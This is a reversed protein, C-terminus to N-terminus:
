YRKKRIKLAKERDQLGYGTNVLWGNPVGARFGAIMDGVTDGVIWSCSLDIGLDSAGALLMGPNPKRCMANSGPLAPCAYIADIKGGGLMVETNIKNQVSAFTEWDFYGRGIGSQNTVLIVAMNNERAHVILSIAEPIPRVDEVKEIYNVLEILTGDRDLFLAARRGTSQYPICVERWMGFNDLPFVLNNKTIM